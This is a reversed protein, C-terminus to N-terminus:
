DDNPLNGYDTIILTLFTLNRIYSVQPSVNNIPDGIQEILGGLGRLLKRKIALPKKGQVDQLLDNITTILGLMHVRLFDGLGTTSFPKKSVVELETKVKCLATVAQFIRETLFETIM